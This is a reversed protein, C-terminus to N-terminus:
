HSQKNGEQYQHSLTADRSRNRCIEALIQRSSWHGQNHSLSKQQAIAAVVDNDTLFKIMQCCGVQSGIVTNPSRGGISVLWTPNCGSFFSATFLSACHLSFSYALELKLKNLFRSYMQLLMVFCQQGIIYRYLLMRFIM